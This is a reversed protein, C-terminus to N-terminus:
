GSSIEVSLQFGHNIDYLVFRFVLFSSSCRILPFSSTVSYSWMFPVSSDSLLTGQPVFFRRSIKNFLTSSTPHPLILVRWCGDSSFDRPRPTLRSRGM